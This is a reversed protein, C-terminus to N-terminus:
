VKLIGLVRFVIFGACLSHVPIGGAVAIIVKIDIDIIVTIYALRISNPEDNLVPKQRFHMTQLSM